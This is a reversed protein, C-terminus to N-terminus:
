FAGINAHERRAVKVVSEIGAMVHLQPRDEDM